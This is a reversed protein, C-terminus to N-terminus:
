GQLRAYLDPDSRQLRRMHANWTLNLFFRNDRRARIVRPDTIESGGWSVAAMHLGAAQELELADVTANELSEGVVGYLDTPTHHKLCSSM